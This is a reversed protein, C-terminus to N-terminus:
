GILYAQFREPLPNENIYAHMHEIIGRPVDLGGQVARQRNRKIAEALTISFHKIKFEANHRKAIKEIVEIKKPSLNTNDVVVDRGEALFGEILQNQVKAVTSEQANSYDVKDGFLHERIIDQNVRARNPAAELWEVAWTSKGSNSIGRTIIVQM